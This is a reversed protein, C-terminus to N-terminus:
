TSIVSLFRFFNVKPFANFILLKAKLSFVIIVKKRAMDICLYKVKQSWTKRCMKEFVNYKMDYGRIDKHM